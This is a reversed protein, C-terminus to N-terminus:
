EGRKAREHFDLLREAAEGAPGGRRREKTMAQQWKLEEDRTDRVQIPSDPGSYFVRPEGEKKGPGTPVWGDGGGGFWLKGENMRTRVWRLQEGGEETHRMYSSSAFTPGWGVYVGGPVNITKIEIEGRKDEEM